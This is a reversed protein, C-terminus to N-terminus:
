LIKKSLHHLRLAAKVSVYADNGHGRISDSSEAILSIITAWGKELILRLVIRGDIDVDGLHIKEKM